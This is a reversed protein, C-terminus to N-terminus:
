KNGNLQERLTRKLVKGTPNKPFEKMLHIQKPVKFGALRSRAYTLLEDSTVEAGPMPVVCAVVKEIWYPDPLGVVAVEAVAPHQAIAEEVEQSAVNEGGTKIMDKKRDLFYLWGQEDRCAVDGTHHWGGRYLAANAEPDEFYGPSLCPGRLVIEGPKGPPVDNMEEDVVRLEVPLHQMGIPDPAALLHELEAAPTNSGLATTETQGWCNHWEGQPVMQRWRQFVPTPLYQFVFLRKLCSLDAKEIGPAQLLGVWVTAPLSLTNVRHTALANLIPEPKPLPIIVSPCGAAFCSFTMALGAVHFMPLALLYHLSRDLSYDACSGLLYAYWNLHTLVVGKPKATTGSTFIILLPDESSVFEEVASGDQAALTQSFQEDLHFCISPRKNAKGSFAPDILLAKARTKQLVYDVDEATFLLNIPVLVAGIRGCAFFTAAYEPSNAALIAVQDGRKIGNAMLLRAVRNTLADFEAYTLERGQFYIARQQPARAASRRLADAVNFRHILNNELETM